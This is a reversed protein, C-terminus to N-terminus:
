LSSFDKCRANDESFFSSLITQNPSMICKATCVMLWTKSETRNNFYIIYKTMTTTQHNTNIDTDKYLKVHTRM